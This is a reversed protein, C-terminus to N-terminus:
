GRKTKWWSFECVENDHSKVFSKCPKWVGGVVMPIPVWKAEAGMRPSTGAVRSKVQYATSAHSRSADVTKSAASAGTTKAQAAATAHADPRDGNM